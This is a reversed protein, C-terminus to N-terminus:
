GTLHTTKVVEQSWRWTVSVAKEKSIKNTQRGSLVFCFFNLWFSIGIFLYAIERKKLISKVCGNYYLIFFHNQDPNFGSEFQIRDSGYWFSNIRISGSGSFDLGNSDPIWGSRIRISGSGLPDSGIRILGSWMSGYALVLFVQSNEYFCLFTSKSQHRSWLRKRQLKPEAELMKRKVQDRRRKQSSCM